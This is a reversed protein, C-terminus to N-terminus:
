GDPVWLSDEYHEFVVPLLQDSRTSGFLIPGASSTGGSEAALRLARKLTIAKARHCNAYDVLILVIHKISPHAQIFSPLLPLSDDDEADDDDKRPM